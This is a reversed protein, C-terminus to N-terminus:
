FRRMGQTGDYVIKGNVVTMLCASRPDLPDGTWISLDAQKHPEVSGLRDYVGISKSTINTIGRLAPYPLWGYWCAMAAQYTLEEQPVVPADTNIGLRRVGNKWWGSANGIMRRATYDFYYQRPGNITWASTERVVPGIKWGDFTCHDLVTWLGFEDTIMAMTAALVQYMQTHMIVPSQLRFVARFGDWIPDFEPRGVAQDELGKSAEEYDAWQQAYARAKRLTQRLNWNMFMRGNGGFYWEPNGAQAIKLSGPSRVIIEDPTQGATSVVTGFGALNTGSGPIMMVTTVGGTRARKIWPNDARPVSRSDLGPNTQYVMDNLDNWGGAASHDHADVIGPLLWHEPFHLVRYGTPITVQDAPGVAEIQGEKVLVVADNIVTDADDLAVVKAVHFALGAPSVVQADTADAARAPLNCL